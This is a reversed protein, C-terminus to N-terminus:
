FDAFSFAPQGQTSPRLFRLELTQRLLGDSEEPPDGVNVIQCRPAWLAWCATPISGIQILLDFEDTARFRHWYDSDAMQVVLSVGSNRTTYLMGGKNEVASFAAQKAVAAQLLNFTASIVDADLVSGDLVVRNVNSKGVLPTSSDYIDNHPQSFTSRFGDVFKWMLEYKAIQNPEITVGWEAMGGTLAIMETDGVWALFSCAKHGSDKPRYNAGAYYIDGSAPALTCHGTQISLDNTAIASIGCAEGNVLVLNYQSFRTGDSAKFTSTSSSGQDTDGTDLYETFAAGLAVHMEGPPEAVTGDGAATALGRLEPSMKIGLNEQAGIIIGEPDLSDTIIEREIPTGPDATIEVGAPQICQVPMLSDGQVVANDMADFYFADDAAVFSTIDKLDTNTGYFALMQYGYWANDSAETREASVANSAGGLASSPAKPWQYKWHKFRTSTPADQRFPSVNVTDSGPTFAIAVVKQGKCDGDLAEFVDFLYNSNSDGTLDASVIGSKSVASAEIQAPVGAAPATALDETMVISQLKAILPNSM